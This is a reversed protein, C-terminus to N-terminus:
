PCLYFRSLFASECSAVFAISLLPLLTSPTLQPMSGPARGPLTRCRGHTGLQRSTVDRSAARRIDYSQRYMNTCFTPPLALTATMAAASAKASWSDLSPLAAGGLNRCVVAHRENSPRFPVKSSATFARSTSPCSQSYFWVDMLAGKPVGTCTFCCMSRKVDRCPLRGRRTSTMCEETTAWWVKAM